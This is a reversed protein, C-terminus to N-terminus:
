LTSTIWRGDYAALTRAPRSGTTDLLMAVALALIRIQSRLGAHPIEDSGGNTDNRGVRQPLARTSGAVRAHLLALPTDVGTSTSSSRSSRHADQLRPPRPRRRFRSSAM